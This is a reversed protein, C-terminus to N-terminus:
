MKASIILDILLHILFSVFLGVLVPPFDTSKIEAITWAMIGSLMSFLSGYRTAKKWFLGLTVTSFLSVLTFSSSLAVLRFIKEGRLTLVFALISILVVSGRITNLLQKDNMNRRLPKIINEGLVVAPALIAASSTSVIASLVSGFFLIKVLPQDIMLVVSLVMQEHDIIEHRASLFKYSAAGLLIPLFAITLYMFAGAFSAIVASKENRATSLRQFIDQSPISGFGLTVIASIVHWIGHEEVAKSLSWKEAPISSLVEHIGGAQGGIFYLAILLGAIIMISQFFDTVSIAIMGGTVTFVMVIVTATPLAMFMEWGFLINFIYALATLQGAIWSFYSIIMLISFVFENVTGYRDRIFDSLSVYGKRYLPRAYFFGVLILCLFAGFPDELLGFIGENLFSGSAGMITESGFWTAFLAFATIYGPMSRGALAFDLTSRNRKSFLFAIGLTFLFYFIVFLGLYNQM